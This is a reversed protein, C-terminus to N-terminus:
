QKISYVWRGRDNKERVLDGKGYLLTLYTAASKDIAKMVDGYSSKPNKKIFSLVSEKLGRAKPWGSRRKLTQSVLNQIEKKDKRFDKLEARKSKMQSVLKEYSEKLDKIDQLLKKERTELQTMMQM